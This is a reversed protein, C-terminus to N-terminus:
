PTPAPAPTKVFLEILAIIAPADAILDQIIQQIQVNTIGPVNATLHKTFYAVVEPKM